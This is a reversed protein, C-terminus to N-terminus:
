KKKIEKEDVDKNLCTEIFLRIENETTNEFWWKKNYKYGNAELIWKLLQDYTAEKNKAFEDAKKEMDKLAKKNSYNKSLLQLMQGMEILHNSFTVRVANVIRKIRFEKNGVTIVATVCNDRNSLDFVKEM